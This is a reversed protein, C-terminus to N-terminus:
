NPAPLRSYWTSWRPATATSSWIDPDEFGNVMRPSSTKSHTIRARPGGQGRAQASPPVQPIGRPSLVTVAGSGVIKAWEESDAQNWEEREDARIGKEWRTAPLRTSGPWTAIQSRSPRMARWDDEESDDKGGQPGRLPFSQLASTRPCRRRGPLSPM